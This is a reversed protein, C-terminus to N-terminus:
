PAAALTALDRADLCEDKAALYRRAREEHTMDGAEGHEDRDAETEVREPPM